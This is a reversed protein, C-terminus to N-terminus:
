RHAVAVAARAAPDPGYGGAAGRRRGLYRGDGAGGVLAGILAGKKGDLVAGLMGGIVAGLGAKSKDGSEEMRVVRSRM